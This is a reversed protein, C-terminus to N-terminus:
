VEPSFVRAKLTGFKILLRSMRFLELGGISSM